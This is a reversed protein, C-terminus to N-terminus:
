FRKIHDSIPDGYDPLPDFVKNTAGEDSIPKLDYDADLSEGDDEDPIHIGVLVLYVFAGIIAGLHPGVIPVWFWHDRSTFVQLGWGAIATFIRPGLDRAPNIAYGCNFGFSLGIATVIFGIVFPAMGKPAGTNKVDTVALICILLLGTALIQDGLGTTTQLFPKPYTAYIGATLITRNEGEMAVQADWYVGFVTAAGAFAGLYQALCYIPVKWWTLKGILAFAVSVAPNLHGGSVGGAVYVGMTVALGWAINVSLFSSVAPDNAFVSQAVSGDGFTLLIYTGLFEALAERIWPVKIRLKSSLTQGQKGM